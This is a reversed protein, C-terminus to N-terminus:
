PEIGLKQMSKATLYPIVCDRILTAYKRRTEGPKTLRWVDFWTTPKDEVCSRKSVKKLPCKPCYRAEDVDHPAFFHIECLYCDHMIDNDDIDVWHSTEHKSWEPHEVLEDWM